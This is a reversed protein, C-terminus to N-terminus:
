LRGGWLVTSPSSPRLKRLSALSMMSKELFVISTGFRLWRSYVEVGKSVGIVGKLTNQGRKGFGLFGSGLVWFGFGLGEIIAM